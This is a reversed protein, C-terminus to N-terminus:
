APRSGQLRKPKRGTRRAAEADLGVGVAALAAHMAAPLAHGRLDEVAVWATEANGSAGAAHTVAARRVAMEWTRHSFQHRAAAEAGDLRVAVGSQEAVLEDLPRTAPGGPLSWMGALLGRAPNRVLLVCGDGDRQVVAYARQEVPAAAAKKPAPIRAQLGKAKALCHRAVPCDGCRPNRPTCVTAGLDMLAQNWDGPTRAPVLAEAAAEVNARLAPSSASGPWANLRALVRVVNGDVAPVREGFAISAIAGATYRGVGPLELLGQASGPMGGLAAAKAAAHLNRARSYYGLGAWARLVDETEAQALAQVTPFREMWRLYYPTAVDVRTQQLMVESVWVAYPDRTRRWPLDRAEHAYWRLLDRRLAAAKPAPVRPAPAM